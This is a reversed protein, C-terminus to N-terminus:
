IMRNTTKQNKIKDTHYTTCAHLAVVAFVPRYAQLARLALARARNACLEPWFVHEALLVRDGPALELLAGVVAAVAPRDPQGGRLLARAGARRAGLEHLVALRAQLLRAEALRHLVVAVVIAERFCRCALRAYAAAEGDWRMRANTAKEQSHGGGCVWACWGCM